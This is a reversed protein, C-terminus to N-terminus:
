RAAYKALAQSAANALVKRIAPGAFPIKSDFTIVYHLHSGTPTETFVMRGLHNKIPGGKTVRYEILRDTECSIVTEEFGVVPPGVRRVSGVGNKGGDGQGDVLRTMPAGMIRGLNEHDSLDAFVKAVPKPFDQHIEVKQQQM